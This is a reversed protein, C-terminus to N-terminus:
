RVARARGGRYYERRPAFVRELLMFAPPAALGTAIAQGFLLLAVQEPPPAVDLMLITYVLNAIATTAGAVIAVVLSSDAFLHQHVSSVLGYIVVFAAAWPGIVLGSSIDFLVGIGFVVLAGGISVQNLALYLALLVGLSPVLYSPLFSRLVTSQLLVAGVTLFLLVLLSRWSLM